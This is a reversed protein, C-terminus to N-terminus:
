HSPGLGVESLWRTLAAADGDWRAMAVAVRMYKRALALCGLREQEAVGIEVKTRGVAAVRTSLVGAIAERQKVLEELRKEGQERVSRSCFGDIQSPYNRVAMTYVLKRLYEEQRKVNDDAKTFGSPASDMSDLIAKHEEQLEKLHLTLDDHRTCAVAYGICVKTIPELKAGHHARFPVSTLLQAVEDRIFKELTATDTRPPGSTARRSILDFLNNFLHEVSPRAATLANPLQSSM